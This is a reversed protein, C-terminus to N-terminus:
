VACCHDLKFARFSEQKSSASESIPQKSNQSRQDSSEVKHRPSAPELPASEGETCIVVGNLVAASIGNETVHAFLIGLAKRLSNSANQAKRDSM